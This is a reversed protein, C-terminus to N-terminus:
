NKILKFTGQKGDMWVRLFYMGKPLRGIDLRDAPQETEILIKGTLDIVSIREVEGNVEWTVWNQAPNPWFRFDNQTLTQAVDLAPSYACIGFEGFT